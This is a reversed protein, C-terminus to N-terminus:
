LLGKSRCKTTSKKLGMKSSMFVETFRQLAHISEGAESRVDMFIGTFAADWSEARAFDEYFSYYFGNETQLRVAQQEHIELKDTFASSLFLEFCFVLVAFVGM